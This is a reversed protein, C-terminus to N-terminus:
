PQMFHKWQHFTQCETLDKRIFTMVKQLESDDTDYNGDGDLPHRSLTGGVVVQKDPVHEVTVNFRMLDM